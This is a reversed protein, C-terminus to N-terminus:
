EELAPSATPILNANARCMMLLPKVHCPYCDLLMQLVLASGPDLGSNVTISSCKETQFLPPLPLYYCIIGYLGSDKCHRHLTQM